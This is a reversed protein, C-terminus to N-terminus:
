KITTIRTRKKKECLKNKDIDKKISKHFYQGDYEIGINLMPIFIDLEKKGIKYNEELDIKAKSLYYVISKESISTQKSSNCIPCNHNKTRSVISAYWEHGKECKWWAKKMTGAIIEDPKIKNKDYNWEKLLEPNTTALDNYGKLIKKNVCYPCGRKRGNTRNAIICKWSHGKECKWWANIGSGSSIEKPNITNKEYDWEKLLEPNTTALDNYGELVKQGACYPCGKGKIRNAVSSFFSHGKNCRWYFKLHSGKIINYPDDKNKNFDWEKLLEPYLTAFDNFGSLVKQNSCYPCHNLKNHKLRSLPSAMWEHGKECKWWVMKASKPSIQKPNITNKEYNWEELIEPNTTQIDNIGEKVYERKADKHACAGCIITHPKSCIQSQWEKGCKSCKWWM